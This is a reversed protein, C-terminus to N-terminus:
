RAGLDALRCARNIHLHSPYRAALGDAIRWPHHIMHAVQQDPTLQEAPVSAPPDPYRARLHPWWIRELREEFAQTDLAGLIYGGVGTTDQAVFALAPEFLGYPAAFFHGLLRPDNYLSTADQGDDGTLLCIRYLADLDSPRYPRILAQIRDMPEAGPQYRPWPPTTPAPQGFKLDQKLFIMGQAHRFLPDRLRKHLDCRKRWLDTFGSGLQHVALTVVMDSWLPALEGKATLLRTPQQSEGPTQGV